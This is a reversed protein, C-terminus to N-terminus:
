VHARGIKNGHGSVPNNALRAGTGLASDATQEAIDEGSALIIDLFFPHLTSLPVVWLGIEAWALPAASVDVMSKLITDGEISFGELIEGPRLPAALWPKLNQSLVNQGHYTHRPRRVGMRERPAVDISLDAGPM